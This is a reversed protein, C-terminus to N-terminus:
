VIVCTFITGMTTTSSVVVRAGPAVAAGVGAGSSVVSSPPDQNCAFRAKCIAPSTLLM